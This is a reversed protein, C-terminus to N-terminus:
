HDRMEPIRGAPTSRPEGPVRSIVFARASSIEDLLIRVKGGKVEAKVPTLKGDVVESVTVKGFDPPLAAQISANKVPVNTSVEGKTEFGIHHRTNVAVVALSDPGCMLSRVWVWGQKEPEGIPCGISLYPALATADRNIRGVEKWLEPYDMVGTFQGEGTKQTLDIFYCYGKAGAGLAYFVAMRQEQPTPPNSGFKRNGELSCAWLVAVLPRPTSADRACGLANWIYDLQRGGLPVYSDTCYVDSIQGYVYWNAPKYTNDVLILNLSRPLARRQDRQIPMVKTNGLVGLRDYVPLDQGEHWDHADPEDWNQFYLLGYGGPERQREQNTWYGPATNMQYKDLIENRPAYYTNIGSEKAARVKEDTVTGYLGIGFYNDWARIPHVMTGNTTRVELLHHTGYELPKELKVEVLALGAGTPGATWSTRKSLDRGDLSIGKFRCPKKDLSRVYVYVSDITPSFAVAELRVSAPKAPVSVEHTGGSGDAFVLNTAGSPVSRLRVSCEAWEGAPVSKQEDFTDPIVGVRPAEVKYWVVPGAKQPTTAVDALPKGDVKILKVADPKDGTNRLIVHVSGSPKLHKPYYQESENWGETWITQEWVQEEAWPNVDPRWRADVVQWSGAQAACCAFVGLAVVCILMKGISEMGVFVPSM